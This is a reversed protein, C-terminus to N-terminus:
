SIWVSTIEYTKMTDFKAYTPKWYINIIIRFIQAM